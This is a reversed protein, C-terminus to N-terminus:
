RARPRDGAGPAPGARADLADLTRVFEAAPVPRSYLYGQVEDCRRARLFDLEQQTEVGEAIVRLGLEHALSIIAAVMAAGGADREIDRVFSQDIKLVDVPFRKLYALSSYGTGFDDIAIQIGMAKLAHMTGIAMEVDDMVLSETLELELSSPDLGSEHLIAAILGPLAADRFQRSSLNVAVRLGGHGEDRWRAAQRCATRLAWAGIPVILGTEEALGIFLDPRMMGNKPHRWRILTEMGVVRNSALAVQPQYHLEFQDLALAERLAEILVRREAVREDMGAAYFHLTHRGAEKAQYMAIEARRMLTVADDGDGPCAAIGASCGIHFRQGRDEFPQAVAALVQNVVDAAQAASPREELLLVFEDGGTRAVTDDSRLVAAIRRAVKVLLRDGLDHGLSDNVHKFHDLDVAVVWSPPAGRRAAALAAEIRESLLVRNPLGTLTDYYAHHELRAEHIKADTVDYEILVFHDTGGAADHVPALYVDCILEIGDRRRLRLLAHSARREHLADLLERASPQEPMALLLAELRQGLFESADYGRMREFAPNVYEIPYGPRTADVLLVANASSEIARFYVRMSEHARRLDATRLAVLREVRRARGVAGHVYATVAVTWALGALLIALSGIYVSVPVPQRATIEWAHGGIEFQRTAALTRAGILTSWWDPPPPPQGFRAVEVLNTQGDVQGSVVLELDRYELLNTRGLREELLTAVDVIVETVGLYPPRGSDRGPDRAPDSGSDSGSARAPGAAQQDRVGLALAIGLRRQPEILPIVGSAAYTDTELAREALRRQPAYAWIDYGHAAHDRPLPAIRDLALYLPRRPATVFGDATRERIQFGPWQKGERAEYAARDADDVFRFFALARLYPHAQLLPATFRQYQEETVMPISGFLVNVARTAEVADGFGAAVTAERAQVRREFDFVLRRQEADRLLLFLLFSITLGSLLAALTLPHPARLHSLFATLRRFM